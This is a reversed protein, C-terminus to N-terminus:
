FGKTVSLVDWFTDALNYVCGIYDKKGSATASLSTIDSGFRFGGAGSNLALTRAGGSALHIIIIKQGATPNTPIGITRNGAATLSFENGLSADLAPTAGDSLTIVKDCWATSMTLATNATSSGINSTTGSVTIGATNTVKLLVTNDSKRVQFIDSTQTSNGRIITQIVDTSGDVVVKETSILSTRGIALKNATTTLYDLAGSETWYGGSSIKFTANGTATDKTLVYENTAASVATLANIAAQATIQGTGGSAIQVTSQAAASFYTLTNWDTSGDGIKVKYTDTEFGLEGSALTPNNTAWNTLTDRRVQIRYIAM